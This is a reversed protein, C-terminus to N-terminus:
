ESGAGSPLTEDEGLLAHEFEEVEREITEREFYLLEVTIVTVAILLVLYFTNPERHYLNGLLLPGFGATGVLGVVPPVPNIADHDRLHVALYCMAGFVIIFSLSAFSTIAGLSGYASFAATIAGIVLVTRPPVGDVDARGIRDPLLDNRLMGKSFHTASFLTANIASGTSFLASLALVTGGLAALGYPQMMQKAAAKLALHPHTQTAHPVLNVTVLGVLVYVLVALPISIYVANRITEVPDAISEQDYFLLQWGQFAVFSIAAAVVPGFSSLQGVGSRLPQGSFRVAFVLGLVGFAFLIAVKLAVLVNEAAGTTRAGLLNVGVFAAIVLVSIVPRAPVGALQAPVVAFSVTFESFAFAYMAMSGIYGVLLTWGTMGALTSSGVFSQVFSVSGGQNQDDIENLKTYSYGTCGAVVGSAVFAAWTAYTTLQAVVGLVAYIGGGIMGGLAMSVSDTLGLTKSSM